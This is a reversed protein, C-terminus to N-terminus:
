PTRGGSNPPMWKELLSGLEPDYPPEVPAIRPSAEVM